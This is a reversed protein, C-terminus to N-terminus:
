TRGQEKDTIKRAPTTCKRELRRIRELMQGYRWENAEHERRISKNQSHVSCVLYLMMTLTLAMGLAVLLIAFTM